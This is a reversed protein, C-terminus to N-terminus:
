SIGKDLVNFFFEFLLVFVTLCLLAKKILFKFEDEIYDKLLFFGLNVGQISGVLHAIYSPKENDATLNLLSYIMQIIIFCVVGLIRLLGKSEMIDKNLFVDALHATLLAFVGASAGVVIVGPHIIRYTMSTTLVSILYIAAVRASGHVMELPVGALLQITINMLLHTWGAHVLCYTFYRYFQLRNTGNFILISDEHLPENLGNKILYFFFVLVQIASITIIFYTPPKCSYKSSYNERRRQFIQIDGIELQNYTNM